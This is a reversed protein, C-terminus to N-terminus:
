RESASPRQRLTDSPLEGFCDRYARSFEGFHWFGWDLAVASVTTSGHTAALLAQRARHLRLRTLYAVPTMGMTAKYAYELARESVAAARCLDTVYVREDVHALAYEEAAKVVASQSQQADDGRAAPLGRTAGLAALLTEIMEVQVAARQDERDDFLAPQREAAEVLRKGWDFVRRVMVADTRLAEVGHPMRFDEERGRVRLHELVDEAELLLTISEYASETVVSAETGPEIALMLAPHIPLGNLSGRAQPDFTAYALRGGQAKTRTRVRHNTSHWVVVGGELRVVVRRALFPTPTLKVADLDVVDLGYGATAPDRIEVVTVAPQHGDIGRETVKPELNQPIGISPAARPASVASTGRGGPEPDPLATRPDSDSM